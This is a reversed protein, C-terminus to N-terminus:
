PCEASYEDSIDDVADSTYVKASLKLKYNRGSVADFTELVNWTNDSENITWEKIKLIGWYLKLTGQM